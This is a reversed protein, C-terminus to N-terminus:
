RRSCPMDQRGEGGRATEVLQIERDVGGIVLQVLHEQQSDSLAVFPKPEDSCNPTAEPGVVVSM